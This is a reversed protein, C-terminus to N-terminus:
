PSCYLDYFSQLYAMEREYRRTERAIGEVDRAYILSAMRDHHYAEEAQMEIQLEACLFDPRSYSPASQPTPPSEVTAIDVMFEVYFADGFVRGTSDQLQLTHRYVGSEAPAQLDVSVEAVEGPRIIDSLVLSSSDPATLSRIGFDRTWSCTGSNEILWVKTFAEGPEMHTGDPITEDSVFSADYVCVTATPTNTATPSSTARPTPTGTATPTVTPTTSPTPTPTAPRATQTQHVRVVIASQTGVADITPTTVVSRLSTSRCGLVLLVVGALFPALKSKGRRNM